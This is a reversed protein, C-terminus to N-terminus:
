ARLYWSVPIRTSASEYSVDSAPTVVFVPDILRSFSRTFFCFAGCDLGPSEPLAADLLGFLPVVPWHHVAMRSTFEYGPSHDAQM